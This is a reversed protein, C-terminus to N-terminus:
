HMRIQEVTQAKGRLSFTIIDDVLECALKRPLYEGLVSKKSNLETGVWGKWAQSIVSYMVYDLARIHFIATLLIEYGM